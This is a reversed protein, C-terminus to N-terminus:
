GNKVIGEKLLFKWNTYSVPTNKSKHKLEHITREYSQITYGLNLYKFYFNKDSTENFLFKYTSREDKTKKLKSRCKRLLHYM